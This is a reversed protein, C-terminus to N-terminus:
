NVPLVRQDAKNEYLAKQIDREITELLAPGERHFREAKAFREKRPIPHEREFRAEELAEKLMNDLPKIRDRLHLQIFIAKAVSFNHFDAYATAANKLEHWFIFREYCQNRDPSAKLERKQWCVLESSNLFETLQKENLDDLHPYRRFGWTLTRIMSFAVALKDWLEPLIDFEQQHLKVTRDFKSDIDSKVRAMEQNHSHKLTELREALRKELIKQGLSKLTGYIAGLFDM